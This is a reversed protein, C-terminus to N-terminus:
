APAGVTGAVLREWSAAFGPLTKDTTDIDEVVLGPCRLGVVAGATAMRHDAYSHWRTGPECSPGSGDGPPTIVLTDPREEVQVGVRGLETALAHLRDTEHGRLHGIGSLVSRGDAFACVAALTPTLEGVDGLDAVLPRLGGPQPGRVRLGVPDRHVGAGMQALLGRLADGAQDTTAPWRPVVVEGGTVLAAALSPAANSLDPEVDATFPPVPGPRVWFVPGAGDADEEVGAEVGVHRLVALTMEVHPRSPVAGLPRVRVGREYRAGALLLASLFQSTATSDLDVEGGRVTGTGRVVVPLGEGRVDVGLDRLAELLPRLPRIRAAADGDIGVSGSALGAVAPVFRLVTGALGGDVRVGDGGYLAGPPPTLTWTTAEVPLDTFGAAGPTVTRGDDDQATVGVGLAAIAQLMLRTDRSVLAGRLTVPGSALAALLAYRNTLSKSGPVPAVGTVPGTAVVVPWDPSPVPRGAPSPTM